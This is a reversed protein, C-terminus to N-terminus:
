LAYLELYLFSGLCAQFPMGVGYQLTFCSSFSHWCLFRRFLGRRLSKRLRAAAYGEDARFAIGEHFGATQTVHHIGQGPREGLEVAIDLDDQRAVSADGLLVLILHDVSPLEHHIEGGVPPLKVDPDHLHHHVADDIVEDVVLFEEAPAIGIRVKDLVDGFVAEEAFGRECGEVVHVPDGVDDVAVVPLGAQHRHIQAREKRISGHAACLRDNRDVVKTELADVADTVDLVPRTQRVIHKVM